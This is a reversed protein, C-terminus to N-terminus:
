IWISPVKLDKFLGYQFLYQLRHIDMYSFQFSCTKKPLITTSNNYINEKCPQDNGQKMLNSTENEPQKVTSGWMLNTQMVAIQWQPNQKWAKLLGEMPSSFKLTRKQHASGIPGAQWGCFLHVLYSLWSVLVTSLFQRQHPHVTCLVIGKPPSFFFSM